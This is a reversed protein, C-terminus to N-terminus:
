LDLTILITLKDYQYNVRWLKVFRIHNSNNVTAVTEYTKTELLKM